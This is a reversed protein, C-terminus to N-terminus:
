SPRGTPPRGDHGADLLDDLGLVGLGTAREILLHLLDTTALADDLARHTPRHDLRLRDALTGLRCNPCRTACSAAPSRLPTSSRRATSAPRGDREFAARLFGLDFGVNHGVFVADGLFELLTRCCRRSGRRPPSSPTPSAPSCPSRPRSRGARTSSRTSRASASAAACRSSASRPSRTTAATAARPRSTSCASRSTARAPHRTRRPLRRLQATRVIPPMASHDFCSCTNADLVGTRTPVIRCSQWARRYARSMSADRAAVISVRGGGNPARTRRSSPAPSPCFILGGSLYGTPM